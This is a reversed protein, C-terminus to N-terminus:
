ARSCVLIPHLPPLVDIARGGPSAAVAVGIGIRLMRSAQQRDSSKWEHHLDEAAKTQDVVQVEGEGVPVVAAGIVEAFDFACLLTPILGIKYPIDAGRFHNGPFCAAFAIGAHKPVHTSIRNELRVHRVERNARVLETVAMRVLGYNESEVSFAESQEVLIM